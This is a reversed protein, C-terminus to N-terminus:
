QDLVAIIDNKKTYLSLENPLQFLVAVDKLLLFSVFGLIIPINQM